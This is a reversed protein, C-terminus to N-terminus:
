TAEKNAQQSNLADIWLKRGAESFTMDHDYSYQLIAKKLSYECYVKCHVDRKETPDIFSSM